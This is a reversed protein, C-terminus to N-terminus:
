IPFPQQGPRQNGDEWARGFHGPQPKFGASTVPQFAAAADARPPEAAAGGRLKHAGAAGRQRVHAGPHRHRLHRRQRPLGAAAHLHPRTHVGHLGGAGREAARLRRHRQVPQSRGRRGGSTPVQDRGRPVHVALLRDGGHRGRLAAQPDHLPRRLRLGPQADARRLDLLLLRLRPDGPDAHDGHRQEGGACGGAQLHADPLGPLEQLAEQHVEEGRNGADAHPNQGTGHPLLHRVPHSGRGRRGPVPQHSHGEGAAAHREGARRVRHRQHVNPGDHAIRHRQLSGADVGPSRYVPFLSVDWSLSAQRHEPGATEGLFCLFSSVMARFCLCPIPVWQNLCWDKRRVKVTDFPHGVLVGAAGGICGAVFDMA